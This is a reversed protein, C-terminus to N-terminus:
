FDCGLLACLGRLGDLYLYNLYIYTYINFYTFVRVMKGMMALLRADEIVEDVSRSVYLSGARGKGHMYIHVPCPMISQYIDNVCLDNWCTSGMSPSVRVDLYQRARSLLINVPILGLLGLPNEPVFAQIQSQMMRRELTSDDDRERCKSWNGSSFEYNRQKEIDDALLVNLDKLLCTLFDDYIRRRRRTLRANERNQQKLKEVVSLPAASSNGCTKSKVPLGLLIRDRLTNVMLFEFNDLASILNGPISTCLIKMADGIRKVRLVSDLDVRPNLLAVPDNYTLPTEPCNKDDNSQSPHNSEDSSEYDNVKDEKTTTKM